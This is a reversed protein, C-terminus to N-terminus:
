KVMKKVFKIVTKTKDLSDNVIKQKLQFRDKASNFDAILEGKAENLEDNLANQLMEANEKSEKLKEILNLTGTLQKNVAKNLDLLDTM